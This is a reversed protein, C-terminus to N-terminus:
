KLLASSSNSGALDNAMQIFSKMEGTVWKDKHYIIQRWVRMTFGTVKLTTLSGNGLEPQIVFDPLFTLGLNSQILRVIFETNGIELFPKIVKQQSALYQELIFRYSADKETLIFPECLLEEITIHDRTAFPHLSSSVFSVEDPMELVKIWNPDYMRKDLLYVIDVLNHNMMNLLRDPSDTVISINVEPFLRHYESLLKPCISACISEITGIRLCGNLSKHETLKEKVECIEHLISNAHEFLIQGQYTLTTRKGIRDFLRTDLEKELQKIQITVAAQSYGLKEAARSFSELRAVQLFTSLERIEM